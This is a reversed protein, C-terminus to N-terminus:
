PRDADLAPRRRPRGVRGLSVPSLNTGYRPRTTPRTARAEYWALRRLADLLASRTVVQTGVAGSDLADALTAQLSRVEARIAPIRASYEAATGSRGVGPHTAPRTRM